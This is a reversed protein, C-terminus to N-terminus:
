STGFKPPDDETLVRAASMRLAAKLAAQPDEKYTGGLYITEEDLGDRITISWGNIEGAAIHSRVKEWEALLNRVAGLQVIKSKM